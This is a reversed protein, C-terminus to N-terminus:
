PGARPRAARLHQGDGIRGAGLHDLDATALVPPLGYTVDIHHPIDHVEAVPAAPGDQKIQGLRVAAVRHHHHDLALRIAADQAGGDSISGRKSPRLCSASVSNPGTAPLRDNPAHPEPASLAAPAPLPRGPTRPARRRRLAGPRTVSRGSRPPWPAPTPAPRQATASAVPSARASQRWDSCIIPTCGTWIPPGCGPRRRM